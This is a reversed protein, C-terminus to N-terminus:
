LVVACVRHCTFRVSLSGSQSGALLFHHIKNASTAVLWRLSSFVSQVEPGGSVSALRVADLPNDRMAIGSRWCSGNRLRRAAFPNDDRSRLEAARGYWEFAEFNLLYLHGIADSLACWQGDSSVAAATLASVCGPIEAVCVQRDSLRDRWQFIGFSSSENMILLVAGAQSTTCHRCIEMRAIGKPASIPIRELFSFQVMAPDHARNRANKVFADSARQHVPASIYIRFGFLWTSVTADAAEDENDQLQAAGVLLVGPAVFCVSNVTMVSPEDVFSASRQVAYGRIDKFEDLAIQMLFPLRMASDRAGHAPTDDHSNEDSSSTSAAAPTSKNDLLYLDVVPGNATAIVGSAECLAMRQPTVHQAYGARRRRLASPLALQAAVCVRADGENGANSSKTM